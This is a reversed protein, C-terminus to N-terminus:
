QLNLKSKIAILTMTDLFIPQLKIEDIIENGVQVNKLTLQLAKYPKGSRTGIGDVIEIKLDDM